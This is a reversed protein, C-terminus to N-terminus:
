TFDSNRKKRFMQSFKWKSKKESGNIKKMIQEREESLIRIDNRAESLLRELEINDKLLSNTLEGWNTKSVILETELRHNHAQLLTIKADSLAADNSLDRSPDRKKLVITFQEIAKDSTNAQQKMEHNEKELLHIQYQLDRINAQLERIKNSKESLELELDQIMNSDRNTMPKMFLISQRIEEFDHHIEEDDQVSGETPMEETVLLSIQRSNRESFRGSIRNSHYSESDSYQDKETTMRLVSARQIEFDKIIEESEALKESIENYEVELTKLKDSIKRQENELRKVKESKVVLDHELIFNKSESDILKKKLDAHENSEALESNPPNLSIENAAMMKKSETKNLLSKNFQERLENLKFEYEYKQQNLIEEYALKCKLHDDQIYPNNEKILYIIKSQSAKIPLNEVFSTQNEIFSTQNEISHPSLPENSGEAIEDVDEEIIDIHQIKVNEDNTIDSEPPRLESHRSGTTCNSVIETSFNLEEALTKIKDRLLNIKPSTFAEQKNSYECLEKTNEILRKNLAEEAITGTESIVLIEHSVQGLNRLDQNIKILYEIQAKLLNIDNDYEGQIKNCKFKLDKFKQNIEEDEEKIPSLDGKFEDLNEDVKPIKYFSILKQELKSIMESKSKLCQVLEEIKEKLKLNKKLLKSSENTEHIPSSTRNQDIHDRLGACRETLILIDEKYKVIKDNYKEKLKLTDEEFKAKMKASETESALYKQGYDTLSYNLEINQDKLRALEKERNQNEMELTRLKYILDSVTDNQEIMQDEKSKINNAMEKIKKENEANLEIMKSLEKKLNNKKTKIQMIKENLKEIKLDTDEFQRYISDQMNKSNFIKSERTADINLESLEDFLSEEVFFSKRTIIENNEQLKINELELAKIELKHKQSKDTHDRVLKEMRGEYEIQLNIIESNHDSIIKRCTSLDLESKHKDSELKTVKRKLDESISKEKSIDDLKSNLTHEHSHKLEKILREYMIIKEKLENHEGSKESEIGELISKFDFEMETLTKTQKHMRSRFESKASSLNQNKMELDSYKKVLDERSKTLEIIRKQASDLELKINMYDIDAKNFSPKRKAKTERLEHKIKRYKEKYVKPKKLLQEYQDLLLTTQTKINNLESEQKRITSGQEIITFEKDKIEKFAYDRFAELDKKYKQALEESNRLKPELQSAKIQAIRLNAQMNEMEAINVPLNVYNEELHDNRKKEAEIRIKLESIERKYEWLRRRTNTESREDEETVPTDIISQSRAM